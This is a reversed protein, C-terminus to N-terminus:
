GAVRSGVSYNRPAHPAPPLFAVYAIAATRIVVRAGNGRLRVEIPHENGNNLHTVVREGDEVSTIVTSDKDGALYIVARDPTESM